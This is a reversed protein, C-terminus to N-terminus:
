RGRGGPSASGAPMAAIMTNRSIDGTRGPCAPSSCPEPAPATVSRVGRLDPDALGGHCTVTEPHRPRRPHRGHLVAPRPPVSRRGRTRVLYRLVQPRM